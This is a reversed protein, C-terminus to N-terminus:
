QLINLNRWKDELSPAVKVSPTQLKNNIVISTKKVNKRIYDALDGLTMNGNNEKLGKLLYYTFLGHGQKDLSHATEDSSAASFTITNGGPKEDKPVIQVARAATVMDGSREAGSFCADLFLLINRSPINNLKSYLNKLSYGTATNTGVGDVPLLFPSSSKEDPIGHGAYYIIMSADGEYANGINELWTLENIINNLTADKVFHVNESPIGLTMMCYRQFSSGDRLAYDVNKVYQYNENAIIVAFTNENSKKTMPINEDIDSAISEGTKAIPKKDAASKQRQKRPATSTEIFSLQAKQSEEFMNSNHEDLLHPMVVKRLDDSYAFAYNGIYEVSAPLTIDKIRTRFFAYDGIEEITEPLIVGKLNYYDAFAGKGIKTVTYKKSGITIEKPIELIGHTKGIGPLKRSKDDNFWSLQPEYWADYIEATQDEENLKYNFEKGGLKITYLTQAQMGIFSLLSIIAIFVHHKM